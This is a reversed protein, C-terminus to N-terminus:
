LPPCPSVSPFLIPAPSPSISPTSTPSPIHPFLIALSLPPPLLCFSLLPILPLIFPYSQLLPLLLLSLFICLSSVSASPPVPLLPPPLSSPLLHIDSALRHPIVNIIWPPMLSASRPQPSPAVPPLQIDGQCAAARRWLGGGNEGGAREEGGM